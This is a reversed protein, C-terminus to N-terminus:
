RLANLYGFFHTCWFCKLNRTFLMCAHSYTLHLISNSLPQWSEKVVTGETTTIKRIRTDLISIIDTLIVLAARGHLVSEKQSKWENAAHKVCNLPVGCQGCIPRDEENLEDNIPHYVQIIVPIYLVCIICLYNMCKITTYARESKRTWERNKGRKELSSNLVTM